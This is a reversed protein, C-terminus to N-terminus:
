SASRCMDKPHWPPSLRIREIKKLPQCSVTIPICHIETAEIKLKEVDVRTRIARRGIRGVVQKEWPRPSPSAIRRRIDESAAAFDTQLVSLVMKAEALVPAVAAEFAQYGAPQARECSNRRTPGAQM